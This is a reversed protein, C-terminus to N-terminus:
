GNTAESGKQKRSKTRLAKRTRPKTTAPRSSLFSELWNLFCPECLPQCLPLEPKCLRGAQAESLWFVFRTRQCANCTRCGIKHIHFNV